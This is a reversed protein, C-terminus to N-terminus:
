NKAKKRLGWWLRAPNDSGKCNLYMDEIWSEPWDRTVGLIKKFPENLLKATESIWYARKSTVGKKQYKEVNIQIKEM